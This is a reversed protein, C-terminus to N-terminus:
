LGSGYGHLVALQLSGVAQPKSLIFRILFRGQAPQFAYAYRGRIKPVSAPQGGSEVSQTCAAALELSMATSVPKVVIGGADFV